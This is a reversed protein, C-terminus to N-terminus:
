FGGCWKIWMIGHGIIMSALMHNNRETSPGTSPSASLINLTKNVQYLLTKDNVTTSYVCWFQSSITHMIQFNARQSYVVCVRVIGYIYCSQGKHPEPAHNQVFSLFMTNSGCFIRVNVAQRQSTLQKLVCILWIFHVSYLTSKHDLRSQM